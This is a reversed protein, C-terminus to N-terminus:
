SFHSQSDNIEHSSILRGQTDYIYYFLYKYEQHLPQLKVEFHNRQSSPILEIKLNNKPTESINTNNQKIFRTNILYPNSITMNALNSAYPNRTETPNLIGGLIFGLELTDDRLENEDIIDQFYRNIKPNIIFEGNTGLFAPLTDQLITETYVGSSDRHVKSIHKVFPIFPDRTINGISDKYYESM